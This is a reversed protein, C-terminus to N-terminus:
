ANCIREDWAPSALYEGLSNFGLELYEARLQKVAAAVEPNVAKSPTSIGLGDRIISVGPHFHALCFDILFTWSSRKCTASVEPNGLAMDLSKKLVRHAVALFSDPGCIVPDSTIAGLTGVFAELTARHFKISVHAEQQDDAM